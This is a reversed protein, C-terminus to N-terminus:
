QPLDVDDTPNETAATQGVDTEAHFKAFVDLTAVDIETTRLYQRWSVAWMAIAKRDLEAAYLNDARIETPRQAGDLGWRNEPLLRALTHVIALAAADRTLGPANGTVVFAALRVPEVCLGTTSQTVEDTGLVAVLVAPTRVALRGLDTLDFRGSHPEVTPVAPLAAKIGAVVATRLALLSM